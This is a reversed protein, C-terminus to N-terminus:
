FDETSGQFYSVDIALTPDIIELVAPGFREHDRIIRKGARGRLSFTNTM